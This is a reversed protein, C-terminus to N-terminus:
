RKKIKYSLGDYFKTFVLGVHSWFDTQPFANCLLKVMTKINMPFRPQHFNFIILVAQLHTQEKVYNILQKLHEKDTGESDQM